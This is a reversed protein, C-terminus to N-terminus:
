ELVEVSVRKVDCGKFYADRHDAAADYSTFFRYGVMADHDYICYMINM